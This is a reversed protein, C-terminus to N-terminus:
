KKKALVFKKILVIGVILLVGVGIGLGYPIRTQGTPDTITVDAKGTDPEETNNSQPIYNGAISEEDRRGVENIRSVIEVKNSYMLDDDGGAAMIKSLTMYVTDTSEGPKLAKNLKETAKVVLAGNNIKSQVEGKLISIDVGTKTWSPNISFDEDFGLKEPYDYVLDAQTKILEHQNSGYKTEGEFYNYLTDKEGQNEIRIKYSIELEAGNILEDDLEIFYSGYAQRLGTTIGDATDVYTIGKNSIKIGNVEKVAVLKSIPRKILGFNVNHGPNTDKVGISISEVTDAYMWTNKILEAHNNGALVEAKENTQKISYNMVALRRDKNDKASSTNAGFGKYTTSKYDQGNLSISSETDGYKFRVIYTGPVFDTFKYEGTGVAVEKSNEHLKGNRDMYSVKNSGTQVEQWIYEYVTGNITVKEILQVTIGNKNQENSDKIGNGIKVGDSDTGSVFDEWVFGTMERTAETLYLNLGPARDTDDEYTKVYNDWSSININGPESNTDILGETTTYGGIEVVIYKEGLKVGGNEDKAVQVKVYVYVDENAGINVDKISNTTVKKYGNQEGTSVWSVKGESNGKKYWSDVVNYEPAFYAILQSTKADKSSYNKVKIKYTVYVQLENSESPKVTTGTQNYDTIRYNYDSKYIAQNYVRNLDKAKLELDVATKEDRGDYDYTAESGNISIDVKSVDTMLGLNVQAREVLGVNIYKVYEATGYFGGQTWAEIKSESYFANDRNITSKHSSENRTYNLKVTEAGSSNKATGNVIEYFKANLANREITSEEGASKIATYNGSTVRTPTVTTYKQGDYEFTVAYYRNVPINQEVGDITAKKFIYKGNSDTTTEAIPSTYKDTSTYLRVKIGGMKEDKETLIEDREEQKGEVADLWVTGGIETYLVKLAEFDDDDEEGKVYNGINGNGTYSTEWNSPWTKRGEISDMDKSVYVAQKTSEDYYAYKSIASINVMRENAKASDKVKCKIKVEAYDLTSNVNEGNSFKNLKRNALYSTKYVNKDQLRWGYDVGDVVSSYFELNSPLADIIEKAYGDLSGENYVRITYTVIDGAKVAVDTKTHNYYATTGQKNKLPTVDVQPVRTTVPVDNVASIYKRLALDLTAVEFDSSTVSITTTTRSGKSLSLTQTRVDYADHTSKVGCKTGGITTTGDKLVRTYPSIIKGCGVMENDIANKYAEQHAKCSSDSGDKSCLALIKQKCVHTYEHTPANKKVSSETGMIENKETYWYSAGCKADPIFSVEKWGSKTIKAVTTVRNTRVSSKAKTEKLNEPVDGGFLLYEEQCKVEIPYDEKFVRKSCFYTGGNGAMVYDGCTSVDALIADLKKKCDNCLDVKEETRAAVTYSGTLKMSEAQADINNFEFSINAKAINLSSDIRIYFEQGSKPYNIENGEANKLKNGNIDSICWKETSVEGSEDKLTAGQIEGFVVPNSDTGGKATRYTVIFPGVIYFTGHNVTEIGTSSIKPEPYDDKYEAYAEAEKYLSEGALTGTRSEIETSWDLNYKTRWLAGQIDQEYLEGTQEAKVKESLIYAIKYDEKKGYKEAISSTGKGFQEVDDSTKNYKIKKGKDSNIGAESEICLLEPIKKLLNWSIEVSKGEALTNWLTNTNWETTETLTKNETSTSVTTVSSSISTGLLESHTLKKQFIDIASTNTSIIVVALFVIIGLVIKKNINM